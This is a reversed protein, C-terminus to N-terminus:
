EDVIAAAAAAATQEITRGAVAEPSTGGFDVMEQPTKVSSYKHYKVSKKGKSDVVEQAVATQGHKGTVLEQTREVREVSEGDDVKASNARGFGTHSDAASPNLGAQLESYRRGIGFGGSAV